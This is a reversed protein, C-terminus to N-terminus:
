EQRFQLMAMRCSAHWHARAMKLSEETLRRELLQEFLPTDVEGGFRRALSQLHQQVKASYCM